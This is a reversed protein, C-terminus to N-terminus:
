LNAIVDLYLKKSSEYTFNQRVLETSKNIVDSLYPYNLARIINKSVSKPSNDKMIFGTKGDIIIDPIAGVPTALVPTGCAMSELMINPLGETHSPIVVLKSNNLYDPLEEHKLWSLVKVKNTLNYKMLYNVIEEKLEGDGILTFTLDNDKPFLPISQVFSMVGKESSFRGVYTVQNNRDFYAKKNFFINFDLFHEHAILVKHSYKELNWEKILIPAYLIIKDSLTCNIKSLFEILYSFISAESELTLTSSGAFALIVKKSLLKATLMPFVLSNGGIFFIWIDVDKSMTLLKLSMNLQLYVYKLIRSSIYKGQTHKIGSIKIRSDNKFYHYGENGTILYLGKSLSCLISVLHSTPIIGSNELPSTLLGININKLTSANKM